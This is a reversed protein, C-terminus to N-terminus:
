AYRTYIVPLDDEDIVISTPTEMEHLEDCMAEGDMKYYWKQDEKNYITTVFIATDANGKNRFEAM